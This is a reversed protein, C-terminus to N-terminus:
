RQKRFARIGLAFFFVLPLWAALIPHLWGKSVLAMCGMTMGYFAFFMGLAGLIGKFVSQRGSAIGAPIAFLTIVLCALPSVAQAWADYLYERQNDPTIDKHTRVFRLKERVSNFQWDRNQLLIDSPRERFEPFNRFALCDLEPTLSPVEEGKANYYRVKPNTFWWEQDLYEAKDAVVSYLRAGSESDTTVTVKQLVTGNSSVEGDVTWVRHQRANRYVLSNAREVKALDFHENRMQKAWQAHAPVYIENVWAVACAMVFAALLLPKVITLFSIGSARMAVIESHRCFNWMTYLTALLLAAPALWMFYPALYGLLYKVVLGAPLGERLIRGFSGFLEFLIYIGVFGLLCYTLPFLFERLVYKGLIRM